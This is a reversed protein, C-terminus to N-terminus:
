SLRNNLWSPDGRSLIFRHVILLGGDLYGIEGFAETIKSGHISDVKFHSVTRRPSIKPKRPGFPEPFVVVIRMINPNIFGVLPETCM